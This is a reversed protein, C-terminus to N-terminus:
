AQHVYGTEFQNSFFKSFVNRFTDEPACSCHKELTYICLFQIATNSFVYLKFNGLYHEWIIYQDASMSDVNENVSLM